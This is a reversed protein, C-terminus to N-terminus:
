NHAMNLCDLHACIAGKASGAQTAYKLATKKRMLLVADENHAGLDKLKPPPKNAGSASKLLSREVRLCPSSSTIWRIGM